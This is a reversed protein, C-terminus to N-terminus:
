KPNSYSGNFASKYVKVRGAIKKEQKEIKKKLEEVKEKIRPKNLLERDLEKQYYKLICYDRDRSIRVRTM